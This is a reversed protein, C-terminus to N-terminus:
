LSRTGGLTLTSGTFATNSKPPLSSIEVVSENKNEKEENSNHNGVSGSSELFSRGETTNNKEVFEKVESAIENLLNEM